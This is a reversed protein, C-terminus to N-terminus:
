LGEIAVAPIYTMSAANIMGGTIAVGALLIASAMANDEINKSLGPVLVKTLLYLLLQVFLAVVAWLICDPVSSAQAIAKNLPIVFGILNGSFAVAASANHRRILAIEDHGTLRTYIAAYLVTLLLGLGFYLVFNPLGAAPVQIWAM